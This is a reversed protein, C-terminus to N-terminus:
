YLISHSITCLSCVKSQPAQNTVDKVEKASDVVIVSPEKNFEVHLKGHHHHEPTATEPSTSETNESDETADKEGANNSQKEKVQIIFAHYNQKFFLAFSQASFM